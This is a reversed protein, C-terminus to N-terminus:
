SFRLRGSPEDLSAILSHAIRLADAIPEPRYELDALFTTGLAMTLVTHAVRWCSEESADPHADDIIETLAVEMSRYASLVIEHIAPMTRGADVFATVAANESNPTAFEGFLYSLAADVGLSRPIIPATALAVAVDKEDIVEDGFFFVRAADTLLEDRNGAFHRVHGRAMGALEAIRELTTGAVGHIAMCQITVTIIQQRRETALSRRGM